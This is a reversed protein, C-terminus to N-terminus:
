DKDIQIDANVDVFFTTSPDTIRFQPVLSRHQGLNYWMARNDSDGPQGLTQTQDAPAYYSQGWDDSLLLDIKPEDDPIPGEGASVVIELRRTTVRNNQSYIPQMTFSRVVPSTGFEQQTTPDLYGIAASSASGVLQLGFGNYWCLAQWQVEQGNVVSTLEFWEQTVCDYAVTRAVGPITLVYFPHGNWTPTLSYCGNLQGLQNAQQLIAEIGANSVRIPTQGSRRRITLDNCIWFPSNDQNGVAYTGAPHSGYPMFTDAATSFPTGTANGTNVFGETTRTGFCLLERHDMVFAVFPDTGFQRTFYATTSFTIQGNGSVQKGDDNFFTFSGNTVLPGSTGNNNALFVIYSDLFQCDLAGGFGLFFAATLQQFGGGGTFPTYTYCSDTGPVLIVLCATNDTMRVFGTGPILIAGSILTYVGNPEITYLGSGVVAYQVGAMEWFGRVSGVINSISILSTIGPWARLCAPQTGKTDTPGDSGMPSSQMMEAYCGVLRKSSARLDPLQYSSLPLNLQTQPRPAM